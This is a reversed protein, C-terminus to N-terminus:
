EVSVNELFTSIFHPEPAIQGEDPQQGQARADAEAQEAAEQRFFEEEESDSQWEAGSDAGLAHREKALEEELDRRQADLSSFQSKVSGLQQMLAELEDDMEDNLASLAAFGSAVSGTPPGDESGDSVNAPLMSMMLREKMDGLEAVEDLRWSDQQCSALERRM